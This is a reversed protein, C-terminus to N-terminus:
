TATHEFMNTLLHKRAVVRNNMPDTGLTSITTCLVTCRDTDGRVVGEPPRSADDHKLHPPGGPLRTHMSLPLETANHVDVDVRDTLWRM